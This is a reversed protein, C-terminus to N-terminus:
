RPILLVDGPRLRRAQAETLNNFALLAQTTVGFRQAIGVVTDGTRVTYQTPTPTPTLTPRAATPMPQIQITSSSSNTTPIVITQGVQLTAADNASLGNARLLAETSVNFRLAIGVLTDGARVIYTQTREDEASSVGPLVLVRGVQLNAATEDTLDNAEILTQMPIGFREAIDVLTDGSRVTYTASPLPTSTPSPTQTITPTASPTLAAATRVAELTARIDVSESTATATVTQPAAGTATATGTATIAATVGTVANATATRTATAAAVTNSPAPTQTPFPTETSTPTETPLPADTPAPTEALESAAEREEGAAVAGEDLILVEPEGNPLAEAESTEPTLPQLPTVVTAAPLALPRLAVLAGNSGSSDQTLPMEQSHVPTIAINNIVQLGGDMQRQFWGLPSGWGFQAGLAAVLLLAVIGPLAVTLLLSSAAQLERGCGPCIVLQSSARRGCHRCRIVESRKQLRAGCQPCVSQNASIPADCDPCRRGYGGQTARQGPLNVAPGGAFDTQSSSDPPQDSGSSYDRQSTPM